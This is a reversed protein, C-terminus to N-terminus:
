NFSDELFRKLENLLNADTKQLYKGGYLQVTDEIIRNPSGTLLLFKVEPDGAIDEIIDLGIGDPMYWDIIAYGYKKLDMKQKAARVSYATDIESDEGRLLNALLNAFDPRDDVILITKNMNGRKM